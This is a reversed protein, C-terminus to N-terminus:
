SPKLGDLSELYSLLEERLGPRELAFAISTKLFGGVTGVDHYTGEFELGLVKEQQAMTRLADTLQIEGGVGEHTTELIGFISPKLVYRGLIALNSPAKSAEPKEVMDVVEHIRGESHAVKVVGYRSVQDPAVRQLALVSAQHQAYVDMMQKIAPTQARIIDDALFVAFPENGVLDKAMLVAHGLGLPEKQHIYTIDVMDSIKRVVQLERTKGRDKLYHELEFSIDFHDVIARKDRGTVVIIQDIGAAVAEEVGYQIIPKDVVPLMEKPQAKTAPLFRTGLGAAPFVAKRIPTV